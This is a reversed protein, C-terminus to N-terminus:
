AVGLSLRHKRVTCIRRRAIGAASAASTVTGAACADMVADMSKPVTVDGTVWVTVNWFGDTLVTVTVPAPTFPDRCAPGNM